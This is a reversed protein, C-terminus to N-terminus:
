DALFKGVGCFVTVNRHSYLKTHVCVLMRSSRAAVVKMTFDQLNSHQCRDVLSYLIVDWFVIVRVSILNKVEWM